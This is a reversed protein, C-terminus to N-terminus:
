VTSGERHAARAVQDNPPFLMDVPVNLIDALERQEDPTFGTDLRRFFTRRSMGLRRAWWAPTRPITQMITRLNQNNMPGRKQADNM